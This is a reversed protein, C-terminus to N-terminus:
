RTEKMNFKHVLNYLDDKGDQGFLEAPYFVRRLFLAKAPMTKGLKTRDAGAILGPLDDVSIKGNAVYLLTGAIIRVMHYLFGDGVVNIELIKDTKAELKLALLRRVTSKVPSGQDMFCAFDREGLLCPLAEEMLDLNLQEPVHTLCHRLYTPRVRDLYLYYSYHKALSDFRANFSAPVERSAKVVVGEPLLSNWALHIRDNPIKSRTAFNAVMAEAHVGGDTRSSGLLNIKEGTLDYWAEEMCEQVSLANAQYQWGHFRSGDYSIKVALHRVM